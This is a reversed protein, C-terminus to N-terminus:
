PEQQPQEAEPKQLRASTLRVETLSADSDFAAGEVITGDAEFMRTPQDSWIRDNVRDYYMISTEIRRGEAPNIVVVSDRATMDGTNWDYTGSRSTLISTLLGDSDYFEVELVRLEVVPQNELFFATDALIHARRVGESTVYHELGFVVQDSQAQLQLVDEAVLPTEGGDECALLAAGMACLAVVRSRM